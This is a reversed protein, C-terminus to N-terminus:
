EASEVTGPFALEQFETVFLLPLTVLEGGRSTYTDFGSVTAVFEVIDGEDVSFQYPADRYILTITGGLWTNADHSPHPQRATHILLQYHSGGDGPFELVQFVEGMMYVDEWMYMEITHKLADGNHNLGWPEIREASRAARVFPSAWFQEEPAAFSPIFDLGAVLAAGAVAAFFMQFVNKRFFRPTRM